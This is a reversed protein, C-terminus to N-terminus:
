NQFEGELGHAVKPLEAQHHTSTVVRVTGRRTVEGTVPGHLRAERSAGWEDAPHRIGDNLPLPLAAVIVFARFERRHVPGGARRVPVGVEKGALADIEAPALAKLAMEADSAVEQLGAYDRPQPAFDSRFVGRRIGEIAGVSHHAVAVIQFRLPAMDPSTRVEVLRDPDAGADESHVRGRELFGVIAGLTQLYCAVSLDYLSTGM